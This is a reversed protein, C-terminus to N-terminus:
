KCEVGGGSAEQVHKKSDSNLLKNVSGGSLANMEEQPTLRTLKPVLTAEGLKKKNSLETHISVPGLSPPM